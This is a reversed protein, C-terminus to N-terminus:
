EFLIYRWNFSKNYKKYKPLNTKAYSDLYGQSLLRITMTKSSPHIEQNQTLVTAHDVVGNGEWDYFNVSGRNNRGPVMLKPDSYIENATRDNINVKSAREGSILVNASCDIGSGGETSPTEGGRKYKGGVFSLSNSAVVDDLITNVIDSNGDYDEATINRMMDSKAQSLEKSTTLYDESFSYDSVLDKKKQELETVKDATNKVMGSRVKAVAEKPVGTSALFNLASEDKEGILGWPDVFGLPNNRVYVYWNSGDRIPDETVFRGLEPDYWRQNFYYLGTDPDMDKGTYKVLDDITDSSSVQSDGYPTIDGNWVIKGEDDTLIVPSGVNNLGYYLTQTDTVRAMHRGNVYVYRIEEAGDEKEELVNGAIDYVYKIVTNDSATKRIRFNNADYTYVAKSVMTQTVPDYASVSTLRNKLDYSYTYYGDASTNLTISEETEATYPGKATLNGNDDYIYGISGDSKVLDSGPYYSYSSTVNNQSMITRSTRNGKGDLGYFENRGGTVALIEIPDNEDIEFVKNIPKPNGLEDLDNYHSHVKFFRGFIADNFTITIDGTIPDEDLTYGDITEFTGERNYLSSHVSIKSKEIRNAGNSKRHLIITKVRYSFDLGIGLTRAGWDLYFSDLPLEVPDHWEITEEGIVDGTIEGTYVDLLPYEEEAAEGTVMATVMQNKGDYAFLNQNEHLVNGALDYGYDFEKLVTNSKEYTINELEQRDTFTYALTMGNAYTTTDKLGNSDYTIGTIYGPAQTLQSLRNYNYAVNMGQHDYAIGTMRNMYDYSYSVDSHGLTEVKFMQDYPDPRYTGSIYNYRTTVGNDTVSKAAGAEDYVYSVTQTRAADSSTYTSTLLSNNASYINVLTTGKPDLTRNPNGALDYYYKSIKERGNTERILHGAEDFDSYFTNGIADTYACVNGLVDYSTSTEFREEDLEQTLRNLSDYTYYHFYGNPNVSRIMNGNDDYVYLTKQGNNKEEWVTRNLADYTYAKFGVGDPLVTRVLNGIEDYENKTVYEILNESNNNSKTESLVRKRQSYTYSTVGGDPETRSTLNNMNDYVFSVTPNADLTGSVPNIRAPLTANTLRDLDDYVYSISFDLNPYLGSTERPDEMLALRDSEDYTNRTMNLLPDTETSVKNRATYTKTWSHGRPDITEIVNNDADYIQRTVSVNDGGDVDTWYSTKSTERGLGDYGYASHTIDVDIDEDVYGAYEHTKNGANDYVFRAYVAAEEDEGNIRYTAEPLMTREVMNRVTYWTTTENGNPDISAVKNGLGDYYAYEKTLEEDYLGYSVAYLLNKDFDYYETRNVGRENTITKSLTEYDYRIRKTLERDSGGLETAANKELYRESTLEGMPNYTFHTIDENANTFTIINNHSNYEFATIHDGNLKSIETLRSLNDFTYVVNSGNRKTETVTLLADDYVVATRPNNVRDLTPNALPDWGNENEDDDPFVIETTRGLKDFSYQTTYGRGDTSFTLYGMTYDYAKKTIISAFSSDKSNEIDTQTETVTYLDTRSFDYARSTVQGSPATTSVLEGTLPETYGYSHTTQAWTDNETYERMKNLQGHSDYSFYKIGTNQTDHYMDYNVTQTGLLLDHRESMGSALALIDHQDDDWDVEFVEDPENSIQTGTNPDIKPPDTYYRNYTVVKRTRDDLVTDKTIKAQNGWDDYVFSQVTDYDKSATTTIKKPQLNSSYYDTKETRIVKQTLSDKYITETPMPLIDTRWIGEGFPSTAVSLAYDAWDFVTMRTKKIVSYRNQTLLIGDDKVSKGVYYMKDGAYKFDFDYNETRIIDDDLSVTLGETYFRQELGFDAQIATPILGLFYDAMSIDVYCLSETGYSLSTEGIGKGSLYDMPFVWQSTAFASLTLTDVGFFGMVKNLTGGTCGGIGALLVNVKIGFGGAFLFRYDYDYDWVRDNIDIAKTLLPLKIPAIINLEEQMNGPNGYTYNIERLLPDNEIYIRKIQPILTAAFPDDSFSEIPDTYEFRIVRGRSDTISHLELSDYEATIENLGSPDVSRQFRGLNDFYYTTGDKLILKGGDLCWGPIISLSGGPYKPDEPKDSGLGLAQIVAPAVISTINVDGRYQNIELVFDEGEHNEFTAKRFVGGLSTTGKFDMATIDYFSGSPTRILVGGNAGRIYPLNLRWGQGMAYAYDGNNQFFKKVSNEMQSSVNFVGSALLDKALVVGDALSNFGVSVNLGLGNADGKATTTDYIRRLEFDFGNKGPLSLETMSTSANGGQMSINMPQHAVKSSFPSFEVDALEQPTLDEFTSPQVAFSSFHNAKFYVKNNEIDVISDEVKMWRSWNADYFFVALNQESFGEPILEEDYAIEAFFKEEFSVHDAVTRDETIVTFDYIPSIIPYVSDEVMDGSLVETAIIRDVEDPLSNKPVLLMMDEYEVLTGEEDNYEEVVIGSYVTEQVAPGINGAHDIAYLSFTYEESNSLGEICYEYSEVTTEEDDVKPTARSIHIDSGGPIIITYGVTETDDSEENWRVKINGNGPVLRFDSPMDPPTTDILATTQGDRFNGVNDFARVVVPIEGDPLYPLQFPSAQTTFTEGNVSVEYHNLGSYTDTTLFEIVPRKNNTWGEPDIRVTFPEPKTLDTNVTFVPYRTLNGGIDRAEILIDNEVEEVPIVAEFTNGIVEAKQKNVFVAFGHEDSVLGSVTITPTAFWSDPAPSVGSIEPPTTDKYVTVSAERVEGSEYTSQVLIVNSSQNLPINRAIFSNNSLTAENGNVLVQELGYGTAYGTVNITEKNVVLGNTPSTIQVSYDGSSIKWIRRIHIEKDEIGNKDTLVIKAINLGDQLPLNYNFFSQTGTNIATGNIYVKSVWPNYQGSLTFYSDSTYYIQDPQNLTFEFSESQVIIQLEDSVVTSNKQLITNIPLYGTEDFRRDYSDCWFYNGYRYTSKGNITINAEPTDTIGWFPKYGIENLLLTQNDKPFLIKVYPQKVELPCGFVEVETTGNPVDLGIQGYPSNVNYEAYEGTNDTLSLYHKTGDEIGYVGSPQNGSYYVRVKEVFSRGDTFALTASESVTGSYKRGDSIPSQSLSVLGNRPEKTLQANIVKGNQGADIELFNTGPVLSRDDLRYRYRTFGNIPTIEEESVAEGNISLVLPDDGQMVIIDLAYADSYSLEAISFMYENQSNGPLFPIINQYVVSPPDEQSWLELEGIGAYTKASSQADLRIEQIAGYQHVDVFVWNGHLNDLNGTYIVGNYNASKISLSVTGTATKDVFFKLTDAEKAVTPTLIAYSTNWASGKKKIPHMGNIGELVFWNSKKWDENNWTRWVTGILGDLMHQVGTYSSSSESTETITLPIMHPTHEWDSTAVALERIEVDDLYDGSFRLYVTDTVICAESLDLVFSGSRNTIFSSPITQIFDDIECDVYATVDPPIIGNISLYEIRKESGLQVQFWGTQEGYNFRASTSLNGDALAEVSHNELTNGSSLVATFADDAAVLVSVISLLFVSLLLKKM